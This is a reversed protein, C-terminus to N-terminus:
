KGGKKTNYKKQIGFRYVDAISKDLYKLVVDAEVERALAIAEAEGEDLEMKLIQVMEWNKVDHVTIWDAQSVKRAGPRKGGQEVVETWVALPIFVGDPYKDHLLALKGISSLGILVSSDSVVKM